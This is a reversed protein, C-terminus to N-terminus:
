WGRSPWGVMSRRPGSRYAHTPNDRQSRAVANRAHPHARNANVIYTTERERMAQDYDRKAAGLQCATSVFWVAGFIVVVVGVPILLGPLSLRPTSPEHRADGATGADHRKQPSPASLNM